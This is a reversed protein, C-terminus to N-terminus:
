STVVHREAQDASLRQVRVDLRHDAEIQIDDDRGVADGGDFCQKGAREGDVAKRVAEVHGVLVLAKANSDLEVRSVCREDIARRSAPDQGEIHGDSRDVVDELSLDPRYLILTPACTLSLLVEGVDCSHQLAIGPEAGSDRRVDERAEHSHSAAATLFRSTVSIRKFNTPASFAGDPVQALWRRIESTPATMVVNRRDDVAVALRGLTKQTMARLFWAYDPLAATLADGTITVKLVGHVPVLYPGPDVGRWETLNLFRATGINTLNGQFARTSFRDTYSLKYSKWEGREITVRSEDDLNEWHGVLAEDFVVSNADYAPQLAVV